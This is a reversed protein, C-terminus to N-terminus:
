RSLLSFLTSALPLPIRESATGGAPRARASVPLRALFSAGQDPSSTAGPQPLAKCVLQSCPASLLNQVEWSSSRQSDTLDASSQSVPLLFPLSLATGLYSRGTEETRGLLLHTVMPALHVSDLVTMGTDVGGTPSCARM